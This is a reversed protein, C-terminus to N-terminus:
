QIEDYELSQYNKVFNDKELSHILENKALQKARYTLQLIDKLKRKITKPDTTEHSAIDYADNFLPDTKFDNELLSKLNKLEECSKCIDKSSMSNGDLYQTETLTENHIECYNM